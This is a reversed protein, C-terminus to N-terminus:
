LPKQDVRYNFSFSKRLSDLWDASHDVRNITPVPYQSMSVVVTEGKHLLRRYKGDFSVSADARANEPM